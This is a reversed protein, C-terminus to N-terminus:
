KRCPTKCNFYIINFLFCPLVELNQCSLFLNFFFINLIEEFTTIFNYIYIYIYIPSSYITAVIYINHTYIYIYISYINVLHIMGRILLYVRLLCILTNLYEKEM